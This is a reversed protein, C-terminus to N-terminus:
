QARCFSVDTLFLFLGSMWCACMGKGKTRAGEISQVVPSAVNRLLWAGLGEGPGPSGKGPDFESPKVPLPIDAAKTPIQQQTLVQQHLKIERQREKVQAIEKAKKSADPPPKTPTKHPKKAMIELSISRIEPSGSSLPSNPVSRIIPQGQSRPDLVLNPPRKKNVNGPESGPVLPLADSHIISHPNLLQAPGPPQTNPPNPPGVSRPM